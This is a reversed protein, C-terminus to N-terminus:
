DTYGVVLRVRVNRPGGFSLQCPISNSADHPQEEVRRGSAEDLRQTTVRARLHGSYRICSMISSSKRYQLLRSRASDLASVYVHALM